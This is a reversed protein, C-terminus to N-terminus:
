PKYSSGRPKIKQVYITKNKVDLEYLVRISGVRLRFSHGSNKLFNLNNNQAYPNEALAELKKRLVIAKPRDLHQFGKKAENSYLLLHPM